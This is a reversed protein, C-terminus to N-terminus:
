THTLPSENFCRASGFKGHLVGEDTSREESDRRSALLRKSGRRPLLCTARRPLLLCNALLNAAFRFWSVAPLFTAKVRGVFGKSM